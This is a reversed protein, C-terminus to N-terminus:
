KTRGAEDLQRELFSLQDTAAELRSSAVRLRIRASFMEALTSPEGHHALAGETPLNAVENRLDRHQKTLPARTRGIADLERELSVNAETLEALLKSRKDGAASQLKQQIPATRDAHDAAAQDARQDLLRLQEATDALQLSLVEREKIRDRLEKRKRLRESERRATDDAILRAIRSEHETPTVPATKTGISERMDELTQVSM